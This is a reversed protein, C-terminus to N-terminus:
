PEYPALRQIESKWNVRVSLTRAHADARRVMIFRKGDATVDYNAGAWELYDGEFMTRPRGIRVSTGAIAVDVTLMKAGSRFFLERGSAAWKPELGGDTSVQYRTGSELHQIFVNPPREGSIGCDCFAIWSGDPSFSGPIGDAVKTPAGAARPPAGGDLRITMIADKATEFRLALRGDRSWAHVFVRADSAVTLKEPDGIGNTRIWGIRPPSVHTTYMISRGDPAWAFNHSGTEETTLPTLVDRELDLMWIQHPSDQIEVALRKGDPSLRPLAFRRLTTSLPQIAATNRDIGVLEHLAAERFVLTGTASVAYDALDGNARMAVNEVIPVAGGKVVRRGADFPVALLRGSAAYVVHGVGPADGEVFTPTGAGEAIVLRDAQGPGVVAVTSRDDTGVTARVSVLYAGGPLAVASGFVAEGPKLKALVEPPGGNVPVRWLGTSGAVIIQDSGNWAWNSYPINAAGPAIARPLGSDLSFAKFGSASMFGVARGDPSFEPAFADGTDALRKLEGTALDQLYLSAGSSDRGIYVFRTGDSSIAFTQLLSASAAVAHSGLPLALRMTVASPSPLSRFGRAFWAANVIALVVAVIWGAAAARRTWTSAGLPSYRGPTTAGSAGSAEGLLLGADGMDRLRRRPDKELCRTLLARIHAPTGEPLAEWDPEGKLVAAIADSVTATAGFPHRGALMEFLVCGFAWVDTRKDVPGGRAQEPSMYAATGLVVGAVTAPSTITAARLVADGGSGGPKEVAKALGFDLVKVTGDFRVKINAPKLDRHVIGRDHAAELAEAIQKAIPLADEIRVPGRALRQSLDEGEVLEMVIAVAPAQGGSVPARSEELGYIGAIHPHNLSALLQAEREFRAFRDVDSALSEPLVKIAVDRQLKTDRARYVQGMGGAGIHSIVEYSGVRNGPTLPLTPHLIGPAVV